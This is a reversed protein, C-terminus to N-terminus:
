NKTATANEEKSNELQKKRIYLSAFDIPEMLLPSYGGSSTINAVIDRIFPFMLFPCHVLLIPELVDSASEPNITILGAYVLELVFVNKKDSTFSKVEVKMAVEYHTDQLKSANTEVNVSVQPQERNEQYKVLFNPNEFSIDKVYQDTIFFPYQTESTAQSDTSTDHNIQDKNDTTM